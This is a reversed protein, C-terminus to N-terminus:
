SRMRQGLVNQRFHKLDMMSLVYSLDDFTNFVEPVNKVLFLKDGPNSTDGGSLRHMQLDGENVVLQSCNQHAGVDVVIDMDFFSLTRGVPIACLKQGIWSRKIAGAALKAERRKALRSAGSSTCCCM